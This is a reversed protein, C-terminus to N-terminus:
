TDSAVAKELEHYWEEGYKRVLPAKLFQYV